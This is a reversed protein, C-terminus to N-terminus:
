FSPGCQCRAGGESGAPPTGISGDDVIGVWKREPPAVLRSGRLSSAHIECSAMHMDIARLAHQAGDAIQSLSVTVPNDTLDAVYRLGSLTLGCGGIYTRTVWGGTLPSVSVARDESRSWFGISEDAGSDINRGTLWVFYVPQIGDQRASQIEDTFGTHFYRM